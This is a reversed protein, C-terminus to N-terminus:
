IHILSLEKIGSAKGKFARSKQFYSAIAHKMLETKAGEIVASVDKLLLVAESKFKGKRKKEPDCWMLGGSEADYWVSRDHPPGNQSFKIFINGISMMQLSSRVVSILSVIRERRAAAQLLVTAGRM